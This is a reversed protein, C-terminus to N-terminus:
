KKTINNTDFFLHIETDEDKYEWKKSYLEQFWLKKFMELSSNAKNKSVTVYIGDINEFKDQIIELFYKWLYWINWEWFKDFLFFSKLELYWYKLNLINIENKKLENKFSLIWIQINDKELIFTTRDEWKLIKLFYKKQSWYINSLQKSIKKFIKLIKDKEAYNEINNITIKEDKKNEIKKNIIEKLNELNQM